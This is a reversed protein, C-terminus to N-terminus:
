LRQASDREFLRAQELLERLERLMDGARAALRSELLPPLHPGLQAEIAAAVAAIGQLRQRIITQMDPTATKTTM